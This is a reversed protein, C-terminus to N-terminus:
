EKSFRTRLIQGSVTTACLVYIGKTLISVDIEKQNTNLVNQGNISFVAVNIVNEASEIYLTKEVPNPYVSLREDNIIEISVYECDYQSEKYFIESDQYCRLDGPGPDCAMGMPFLYAGGIRQIHKGGFAVDISGIIDRTYLIKLTISDVVISGISDVILSISDNHGLYIVWSDGISASFDYLLNFRQMANNFFFVSDNRDFIYDSKWACINGRGVVKRCSQGLVVTDKESQLWSYSVEQGRWDTETYHWKAGVPAFPQQGEAEGALAVAFFLFIYLKKM